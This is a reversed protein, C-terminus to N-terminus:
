HVSHWSDVLWPEKYNEIMNDTDSFHVMKVDPHFKGNMYFPVFNCWRTNLKNISGEKYKGFWTSPLWSRDLNVHNHVFNQEGGGLNTQGLKYYIDRYFEPNQEYITPLHNTDGQWFMQFGGNIPCVKQREPKTWWRFNCGFTHRPLDWSLIEDVNNIVVYDIDLILCKGEIQPQNHLQLKYWQRVYKDDHVLPIVNIADLLGTSDETLCYFKFPITTNRFLGSYLRNIYEHGYKDGVKLTLINMNLYLLVRYM